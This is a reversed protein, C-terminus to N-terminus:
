DALRKAIKAMVVHWNRASMVPIIRRPLERGITLNSPHQLVRHVRAPIYKAPGTYFSDFRSVRSTLSGPALPGPWPGLPKDHLVMVRRVDVRSAPLIELLPDRCLASRDRWESTLSLRQHLPEQAAAEVAASERGGGFSFLVRSVIAALCGWLRRLSPAAVRNSRTEDISGNLAHDEVCEAGNCQPADFLSHTLLKVVM